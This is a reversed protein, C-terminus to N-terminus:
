SILAEFYEYHLFIQTTRLTAVCKSIDQMSQALIDTKNAINLYFKVYVAYAKSIDQYM